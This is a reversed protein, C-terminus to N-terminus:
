GVRQLITLGNCNNFVEHIKWDHNDAIFEVIAKGLGTRIDSESFGSDRAQAAIDMGCRVSEGDDKDVETDHLAIYRRVKPAHIALERKLQPYVHWTDIFLLDVGDGLDVTLDNGEIFELTINNNAAATQANAFNPSRQLDVSILKKQEVMSDKLAKLLAWTSVVSRVGFEAITSCGLSYRYLTPLHEYIDSPAACELNYQADIDTPSVAISNNANANNNNVINNTTNQAIVYPVLVRPELWVAFGEVARSEARTGAFEGNTCVPSMPVGRMQVFYKVDFNIAAKGGLRVAIGELRRSRGRSGVFQGERVWATDGVKEVHAMYHIELDPIISSIQIGEIRLNPHSILIEGERAKVDGKGEVHVMVDLCTRGDPLTYFNAPWKMETHM